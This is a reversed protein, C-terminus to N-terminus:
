TSGREKPEEPFVLDIDYHAFFSRLKDQSKQTDGSTDNLFAEITIMLGSVPISTRAPKPPPSVDIHDAIAIKINEIPVESHFSEYLPLEANKSLCREAFKALAIKPNPEKADLDVYLGSDFRLVLILAKDM